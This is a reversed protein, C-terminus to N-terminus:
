PIHNTPDTRLVPRLRGGGAAQPRSASGPLLCRRLHPLRQRRLFEPLFDFSFSPRFGPTLSNDPDYGWAISIDVDDILVAVSGHGQAETDVGHEGRESLFGYRFVPGSGAGWCTIQNWDDPGSDIIKQRINNLNM